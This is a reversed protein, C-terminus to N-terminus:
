LAFEHCETALQSTSQALEAFQQGHHVIEPVTTGQHQKEKRKQAFSKSKSVGGGFRKLAEHFPISPTESNSKGKGARTVKAGKTETATEDTSTEGQKQQGFMFPELNGGCNTTDKQTETPVPALAETRCRLGKLHQHIKIVSESKCSKLCHGAGGAATQRQNMALESLSTTLKKSPDDANPSLKPMNNSTGPVNSLRPKKMGCRIPWINQFMAAKALTVREGSNPDTKYFNEEISVIRMQEAETFEIERGGVDDWVMWDEKSIIRARFAEILSYRQKNNLDTVVDRVSNFSWDLPFPHERCTESGFHQERFMAMAMDIQRNQGKIECLLGKTSRFFTTNKQNDERLKQIEKKQDDIRINQNAVQDKLEASEERLKQIEKKQDDIRVNQNAVQDKLQKITQDNEGRLKNMFNVMEKEWKVVRSHLINHLLWCSSFVNPLANEVPIFLVLEFLLEPPLCKPTM